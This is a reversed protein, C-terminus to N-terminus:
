KKEPIIFTNDSTTLYKRLVNAITTTLGVVFVTKLNDFTPFSGSELMPMLATLVSTIVGLILSNVVDKWNLSFLGSNM